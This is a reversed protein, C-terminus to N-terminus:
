WFNGMKKDAANEFGIVVLRFLSKISYPLIICYTNNIICLHYLRKPAICYADM